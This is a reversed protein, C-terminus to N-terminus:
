LPTKQDGKLKMFKEISEEVVTLRNHLNTNEERLKRNARRHKVEAAHVTGQIEIEVSM